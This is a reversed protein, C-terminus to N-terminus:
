VAAVLGLFFAAGTLRYVLWSAGVTQMWTGFISVAIGAYFIRFNRSRLARLAHKM